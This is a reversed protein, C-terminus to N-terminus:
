GIGSGVTNGTVGYPYDDRAIFQQARFVAEPLDADDIPTTGM